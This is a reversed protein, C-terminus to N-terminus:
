FFNSLFYQLFFLVNAGKLSNSNCVIWVPCMTGWQSQAIMVKKYKSITLKEFIQRIPVLNAYWFFCQECYISFYEYCKM